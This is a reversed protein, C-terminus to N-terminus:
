ATDGSGKADTVRVAIATAKKAVGYKNSMAVGAVATGHGHEDKKYGKKGEKVM